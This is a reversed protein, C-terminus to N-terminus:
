EFVNVECSYDVGLVSGSDDCQEQAEKLTKNEITETYTLSGAECECAWDKKCSVLFGGVVVLILVKKM